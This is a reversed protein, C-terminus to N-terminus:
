SSSKRRVKDGVKMSTQQIPRPMTSTAKKVLDLRFNSFDFIRVNTNDFKITAAAAKTCFEKKYM